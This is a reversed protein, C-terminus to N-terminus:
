KQDKKQENGKKRAKVKRRKNESEIAKKDGDTENEKKRPYSFERKTRWIAFYNGVSFIERM